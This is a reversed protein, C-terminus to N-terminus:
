DTITVFISALGLVSSIPYKKTNRAHECVKFMLYVKKRAKVIETGLFSKQYVFKRVM